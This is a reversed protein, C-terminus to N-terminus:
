GDLDPHEDVRIGWRPERRERFAAIGEAAEASERAELHYKLARRLDEVITRPSLDELLRKTRAIAGPAGKCSQRALELSTNSLASLPVVRNVLGMALATEASITQGLLVLERVARDNLQRRLLCSVLAAVLGRHVEPFGIRLDDAAVVLDCAALLGVGGGMAAGHAAAITILPSGCLTAYLEALASASRDATETASAEALDLGACFVSGAGRLILARRRRDSAAERVNHTLQEILEISLANRKGPRNLTLVTIMEDRNDILCLDNMNTTEM